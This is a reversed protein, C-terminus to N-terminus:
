PTEGPNGAKPEFVRVKGSTLDLVLVRGRSDAAVDVAKYERDFAGDGASAGPADLQEPGAVVGQFDGQPSYVKVRLLGKEATVFRGDPLLCFHAPNCCGFFGEIASSSEGWFLDMRGDFTFAQLRQAGPNAVWLHGDDAVAVDCFPSPIALGAVGRAKDPGGIRGVLKGSPDFRYVVQGAFDAVFVDKEAVAISTPRPKEGPLDWGALRAGDQGFVEIRGGVGAYVAGPRVHRTGAVALCYGPGALAIKSRPAGDPGFVRIAGEGAVYIRDAADVAVAKAHAVESSFGGTERYLFLAADIKELSRTDYEFAEPLRNGRGGWRDWQWAAVAGVAVAALVIAVIVLNM